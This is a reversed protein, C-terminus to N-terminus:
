GSDSLNHIAPERANSPGPIVLIDEVM